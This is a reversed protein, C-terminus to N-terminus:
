KSWSFSDRYQVIRIPMNTGITFLDDLGNQSFSSMDFGLGEYGDISDQNVIIDSGIIKNTFLVPFSQTTWFQILQILQMHPHQMNSLIHHRATIACTIVTNSDSDMYFTVFSHPHFSTLINSKSHSSVFGVFQHKDIGHDLDFLNGSLDYHPLKKVAKEIVLKLM